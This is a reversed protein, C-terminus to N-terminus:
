KIRRIPSQTYAAIAADQTLLTIGEVTAQAILMRDFPDRHHPPLSAVAAAHAGTIPLELYDNDLFGRRFVHPDVAFDQRGLAHKIAVEWISVVSFYLDNSHDSVLARLSKSLAKPPTVLGAVWLLLHTDLLLRM